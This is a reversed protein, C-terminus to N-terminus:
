IRHKGAEIIKAELAYECENPTLITELAMQLRARGWLRGAERSDVTKAFVKSFRPVLPPRGPFLRVDSTVTVLLPGQTKGAVIREDPEIRIVLGAPLTQACAAKQQVAGQARAVGFSILLAAIAALRVRVGIVTQRRQRFMVNAANRVGAFARRWGCEFLTKR